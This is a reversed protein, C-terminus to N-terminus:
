LIYCFFCCSLYFNLINLRYKMDADWAIGEKMVEIEDQNNPEYRLSFTDNFYSRAALGCPYAVGDPELTTEGDMSMTKGMESNKELSQCKKTDNPGMTYGALQSEHISNM